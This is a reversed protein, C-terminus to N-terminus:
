SIKQVASPTQAASESADQCDETQHESKCEETLRQWLAKMAHRRKNVASSTKYGLEKAIEEDTFGALRLVLIKMDKENLQECFQRRTALFIREEEYAPIEDEHDDIPLMTGAKTRSHNWRRYFNVGDQTYYRPYDEHAPEEDAAAILDGFQQGQMVVELLGENVVATVRDLILQQEADTLAEQETGKAACYSEAATDILSGFLENYQEIAAKTKQPDAIIGMAESSIYDADANILLKVPHFESVNELWRDFGFAPLNHRMYAATLNMYQKKASNYASEELASLTKGRSKEEAGDEDDWLSNEEDEDTDSETSDLTPLFDDSLSEEAPKMARQNHEPPLRLGVTFDEKQFGSILIQLQEPTFQILEADKEAETETEKKKKAM